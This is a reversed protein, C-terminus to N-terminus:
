FIIEGSNLCSSCKTKQIEFLELKFLFSGQLFDNVYNTKRSIRPLYKKPQEHHSKISFPVDYFILHPHEKNHMNFKHYYKEHQKIKKCLTFNTLM